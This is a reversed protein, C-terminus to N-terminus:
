PLFEQPEPVSGNSTVSHSHFPLGKEIMEEEVSGFARTQCKPNCVHRPFARRFWTVVQRTAVELNEVPAAVSFARGSLQAKWDGSEERLVCLHVTEGSDLLHHVGSISGAQNGIQTQGM